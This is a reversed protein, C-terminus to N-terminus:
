QLAGRRESRLTSRTIVAIPLGVCICHSFLANAITWWDNKPQTAPFRVPLVLRYMILYLLVGYLLGSVVPRDLLAPFRRAALVFAAVMATMIAFHVITGVLAPGIGGGIAPFPGSAVGAMIQVPNAGAMGGFVFASLLDLTGAVVSGHLIARETPKM